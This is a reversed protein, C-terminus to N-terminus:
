SGTPHSRATNSRRTAFSGRGCWGARSGPASRGEFSDFLHHKRGLGCILWSSAGLYVGCEATDGEVDEVLKLLQSLMWRRHSNFGKREDFRDLYDNFKKDHWWDMQSWTLRYDPLLKDAILKLALLRRDPNKSLANRTVRALWLSM